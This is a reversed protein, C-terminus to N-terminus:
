HLEHRLVVTGPFNACVERVLDAVSGAYRHSFHFPVLHSAGAAKAIEACARATLHQTKKAHDRDEDLFPAECFLTHAGRALETLRARNSPTDDLDTAYALKAGERVLLLEDAADAVRVQRGDPLTVWTDLEGRHVKGKLATLWPGPDLRSAVLREPRVNIQQAEELAFALVPTGHDLYAARV